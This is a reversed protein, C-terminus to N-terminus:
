SMLRDHQNGNWRPLVALYLFPSTVLRSIIPWVWWVTLWNMLWCRPLFCFVQLSVSLGTSGDLIDPYVLIVTVLMFVVFWSSHLRFRIGFFTGLNFVRNLKMM